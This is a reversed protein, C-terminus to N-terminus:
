RARIKAIVERQNDTLHLKGNSLEELHDELIDLMLSLSAQLSELSYTPLAAGLLQQIARDANAEFAPFARPFDRSFAFIDILTERMRQLLYAAQWFKRRQVGINVEVGWRLFRNVDDETISRQPKRNASGAAQIVALDIKGVLIQLSDIINPSTTALTHYRISLEALSKLVVDGSDEGNPLVILSTEGLPQFATCLNELETVVNIQIGDEIVVDLDLDSYQDWNGRVLSGFLCVALIRSDDRYHSVICKLLAQHHPTGPYASIM